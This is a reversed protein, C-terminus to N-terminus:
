LSLQENPPLPWRNCRLRWMDGALLGRTNVVSMYELLQGQMQKTPFTRVTLTYVNKSKLLPVCTVLLMLWPEAINLHWQSDHWHTLMWLLGEEHCVNQSTLAPFACTSNIDNIVAAHLKSSNTGPWQQQANENVSMAKQSVYYFPAM